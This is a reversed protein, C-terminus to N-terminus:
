TASAILGLGSTSALKTELESVRTQLNAIVKVVSLMEDASSFGYGTNQVPDAIAYDPTSPANCTVTTLQATLAAPQVVPAKNYFGIKQNTATGIKTGTTTGLTIDKAETITTSGLVNSDGATIAGGDLNLPTAGGTILLGLAILLDKLDSTNAPKVVPTAGFFGLKQTAGSGIKLGTTTDTVLAHAQEDWYNKLDDGLYIKSKQGAGESNSTLVLDHGSNYATIM